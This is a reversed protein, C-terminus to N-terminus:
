QEQETRENLQWLIVVNPDATTMKIVPERDAQSILTVDRIGAKQSRLHKPRSAAIPTLPIQLTPGPNLNAVLIPPETEQTVSPRHELTHPLILLVLAAAVGTAWWAWPRASSQQSHLKATLWTRVESLENAEPNQLSTAIFSRTKQFESLLRQCQDCTQLHDAVARYSQPALDGWAYLALQEERIHKV